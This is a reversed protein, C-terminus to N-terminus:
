KVPGAPGEIALRIQRLTVLFYGTVRSTLLSQLLLEPISKKSSKPEQPDNLTM